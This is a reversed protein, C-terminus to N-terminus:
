ENSVCPLGEVVSPSGPMGMKTVGGGRALGEFARERLSCSFQRTLAGPFSEGTTLIEYCPRSGEGIAWTENGIGFIRSPINHDM